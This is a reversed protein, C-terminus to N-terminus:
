NGIILLRNSETFHVSIVATQTPDWSLINNNKPSFPNYFGWSVGFSVVALITGNKDYSLCKVGSADLLFRQVPEGKQIDWVFIWGCDDGAALFQGCPSFSVTNVKEDHDTFLRVPTTNNDTRWLTIKNAAVIAFITSNPHFQVVNIPIEVKEDHTYVRMPFFEDYWYLVVTSNESASLICKSDPSCCVNYVAKSHWTHVSLCTGRLLDWIRVTKDGSGSILRKLKSDIAVCSVISKHGVFTFRKNFKIFGGIWQNSINWVWILSNEFGCVVYQDSADAASIVSKKSTITIFHCSKKKQGKNIFYDKLELLSMNEMDKMQKAQAMTDNGSQIPSNEVLMLNEEDENQDMEHETKAEYI